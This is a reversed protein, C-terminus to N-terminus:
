ADPLNPWRYRNLTEPALRKLTEYDNMATGTCTAPTQLALLVAAEVYSDRTPLTKRREDSVPGGFNMGPTEVASVPKLANVAIDNGRLENAFAATMAELGRKIVGYHGYLNDAGASSVNIISGSRQAIMAEAVARTAHFPGNLNIKVELEWHKPPIDMLGGPPLVGANNMLVDIRGYRALVADVMAQISAPNAVNCVVPFGEGDAEDVLRATHHITGPLRPDTEEETRAAVAVIAGESGYGLACYQGLGRSAGTVIIVKGNLRGAM